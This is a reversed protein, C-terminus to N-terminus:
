DGLCRADTGKSPTDFGGDFLLGSECLYKPDAAYHGGAGDPCRGAAGAQLAQDSFSILSKYEFDATAYIVRRVIEYEAASFSHDGIENDILGLSQADSVHWEM